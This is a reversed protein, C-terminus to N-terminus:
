FVNFFSSYFIVLLIIILSFILQSITFIYAKRNEAYKWEMFATVIESIVLNVLILFWVELYWIAENLNRTRFFHTTLLIILFSILIIWYIKKHKENVHNYPFSKRKEVKLFKRMVTNFIFIVSSLIVMLIILKIWFIPEVGYM